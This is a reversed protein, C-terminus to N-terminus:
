VSIGGTGLFVRSLFNVGLCMDLRSLINSINRVVMMFVGRNLVDYITTSKRDVDSSCSNIAM